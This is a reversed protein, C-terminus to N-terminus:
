GNVVSTHCVRKTPQQDGDVDEMKSSQPQSPCLGRKQRVTPKVTANPDSYHISLSCNNLRSEGEADPVNILEGQRFGHSVLSNHELAEFHQIEAFLDNSVHKNLQAAVVRETLCLGERTRARSAAVYAAFVSDHM